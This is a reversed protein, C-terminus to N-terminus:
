LWDWVVLEWDENSEHHRDIVQFGAKSHAKLSRPNNVSIETILLDYRGSFEQRHFPYLLDVVGQGRYRERICIQGMFYLRHDILPRGKYPVSSVYAMTSALPPYVPVCEKTLTIAYGAVLDGDKVIVSPIVAHLTRLVEIPYVWTVFGEKQKTEASLNTALNAASLEAIQVLEEDTTVLKAIFM